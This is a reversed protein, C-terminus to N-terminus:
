PRPVLRGTYLEGNKSPLLIKFGLDLQEKYISIHPKHTFHQEIGQKAVSGLADRVRKLIKEDEEPPLTAGSILWIGNGSKKIGMWHRMFYGADRYPYAASAMKLGAVPTDKPLDEIYVNAAVVEGPIFFRRGVYGEATRAEYLLAM